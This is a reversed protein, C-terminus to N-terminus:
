KNASRITVRANSTDITAKARTGDGVAITAKGHGIEVRSSTGSMVNTEISGNSTGADVTGQWAAPLQLEVRGNSTDIKVNGTANPALSVEVRGNSTDAILPTGVNLATISGNSTDLEVSGDHGDVQISGNSTAFRAPGTFAGSTISGNSTKVEIGDLSAARVVLSAGDDSGVGGMQVRVAGPARSPFVVTLGTRGGSGREVLINTVKVRAEAVERSEAVCRIKATVQVGTVAADKVIEVSGNENTLVLSRAETITTSITGEASAADLRCAALALCGTTAAVTFALRAIWRDPHTTM